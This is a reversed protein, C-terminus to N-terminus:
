YFPGWTTFKHLHQIVFFSESVSLDDNTWTTAQQKNPVLGGGLSINVMNDM